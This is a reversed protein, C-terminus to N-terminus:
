TYIKLEALFRFDLNCRSAQNLQDVTVLGASATLRLWRMHIRDQRAHYGPEYLIDM